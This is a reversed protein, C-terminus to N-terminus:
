QRELRHCDFAFACIRRCEEMLAPHVAWPLRSHPLPRGIQEM